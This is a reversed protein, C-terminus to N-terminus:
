AISPAAAAATPKPARRQRRAQAALRSFTRPGEIAAACGLGARAAGVVGLILADAGTLFLNKVPTRPQLYTRRFREPTAPIGYIEGRPHATFHETSLPTSLERHAVLAGFGPLRREVMALMADALKEKFAEYEPGRKMWRTQAWQEFASADATTIIEATPRRAEPDKMSPFSLFVQSPRGESIDDSRSAQADQNLGDHIWFNEGQIGLTAPSANFGLYLSLHAMSPATARLENRFAIPVDSPLLRLFTNRAGADSIVVRSRIEEGGKLRVGVARGGEVLIKEVEARVRLVGGCAELVRGAAEALRASSGVPFYGGELYHRAILAHVLFASQAPPLGFNAWRAGLVAKLREDRVNADLWAGTTMLALRRAGFSLADTVARIPEPAVGRMGVVAIYSAARELDAFYRDIARAERPFAAKLDARFNEKGARIAFEFGPFVLRDYAEPMRNWRVEGGTVVDLVDRSTGKEGMEGVYHVGVDWSFGGRRSFVHTFGGAKFHRELVLVRRGHLRALLVAASLGGIGSGIVIADYKSQTKTTM